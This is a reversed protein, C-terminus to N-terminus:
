IIVTDTLLPHAAEDGAAQQRLIDECLLIVDNWYSYKEPPRIRVRHVVYRTSTLATGAPVLLYAALFPNGRM